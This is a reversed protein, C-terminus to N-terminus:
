MGAKGEITDAADKASDRVGSDKAGTALARLAPIADKDKRDRLAQIAATQVTPEDAEKLLALLRAHIAPDTPAIKALADVANRCTAAAHKRDTASLLLPAEADTPKDSLVRVAALALRDRQSHAEIQHKYVDLNAAVSWRSLGAMAREVVTYYETDSLAASRLLATDEPTAPLKSLAELAAARREIQKSKAETRFIPRYSEQAADSLQRIIPVANSESTETRLADVMLKLVEEKSANTDSMLISRAARRDLSCPAYRLVVAAEASTWTPGKLEKILDHDPDLLVVDPKITAPIRFEQEAQNCTFQQREVHGGTGGASRLLAFELPLTFIPTGNATDQTQKIHAVVAKGAEDYTWSFDLKPHGPKFIWQDFFAEMNRGTEDSIAKVLAHTDVPQYANDKLYRGLSRFFDADGLERRLMHLVLGGKYYTHGMSMILMDPTQYLETSIPHVSRSAGRLYANLYGSREEDYSDKGTHHEEYLLEFFTAFSENLWIDGWHGCTVMDGFWQHALEHSTLSSVPYNGSRKDILDFSGLTTASVNEMGGPFGYVYDQAYKPWPYKVGLTDSFFQLMDPTNGFSGSIYEGYGKPVAYYVPVGAWVDKQVDLEGAVLSLLYTAHPQKMEWRFTRTHKAPDATTKGQIGNGIVEWSEPVTVTVDSTCKDNPYDYCPVWAHNAETEGQTWFGPHLIPLRPNPDIWRLGGDGNAAGLSANGQFSYRIEVAVEKGRALPAPPTLTLTDGTHTFAVPKADLRCAEIKLKSGADLVVSSLRDRLPSLYHTVVGKMAHKSYDAELVLSLHRVHYDRSRAYHMTALPPKFPDRGGQPQALATTPLLSLGMWLLVSVRLPHSRSPLSSNV